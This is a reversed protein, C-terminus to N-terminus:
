RTEETLAPSTARTTKGWAFSGPEDLLASERLADARSGKHYKGDRWKGVRYDVGESDRVYYTLGADSEADPM